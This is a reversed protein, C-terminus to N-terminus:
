KLKAIVVIPNDDEQIDKFLNKYKSGIQDKHKVLEEPDIKTIMENNKNIYMPHFRVPIGSVTYGSDKFDPTSSVFVQKSKKDYYGTLFSENKYRESGSFEVTETYCFFNFLITSNSECVFNIFYKGKNYDVNNRHYYSPQKDGLKFIIHPHMNRENVSFVTDNYSMEKFYTLGNYYYFIGPSFPYSRMGDANYELYNPYKKILTGKKDYVILRTKDKGTRNNWFSVYIDDKIFWPAYISFNESNDESLPKKINSEVRNTIINICKWSKSSGADEAFLINNEEDFGYRHYLLGTYEDPGRGQSSIERIFAGTKRDFLYAPGLFNMGIIYKDTLYYTASKAILLAKKHTELPIVEFDKFIEEANKKEFKAQAIDVYTLNQANSANPAFFIVFLIITSLTIKM